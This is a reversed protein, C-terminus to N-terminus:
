EPLKVGHWPCFQWHAELQEKGKPCRKHGRISTLPSHWEFEVPPDSASVTYRIRITSQGAGYAIANGQADINPLPFLHLGAALRGLSTTLAYSLEPALEALRSDVQRLVKGETGNVSIEFRRVMEAISLTRLGTEQTLEADLAGIIAYNRFVSRVEGIEAESKGLEKAAAVWYEAPFWWFNIVRQGAQHSRMTEASIESSGGGSAGAPLGFAFVCIM